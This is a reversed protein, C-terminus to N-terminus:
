AAGCLAMQREEGALSVTVTLVGGDQGFRLGDLVAVREGMAALESFSAGTNAPGYYECLAGDRYCILTEGESGEDRLVLVQLGDQEFLEAEGSCMRVQNALYFLSARLDTDQRGSAVIDRYVGAGIVVLLLSFLAFMGYVLFVLLGGASSSGRRM